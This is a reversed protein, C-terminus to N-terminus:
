WRIDYETLPISIPPLEYFQLTFAGRWGYSTEKAQIFVQWGEPTEEVPADVVDNETFTIGLYTILSPLLEYLTAHYPLTLGDSLLTDLKSLDLRDYEIVESGRYEYDENATLRIKTSTTGEEGVVPSFYLDDFSLPVLANRNIGKVIDRKPEYILSM